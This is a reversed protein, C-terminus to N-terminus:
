IDKTTIGQGRAPYVPQNSDTTWRIYWDTYWNKADHHPISTHDRTPRTDKKTRTYDCINGGTGLLFPDVHKRCMVVVVHIYWKRRPLMRSVLANSRGKTVGRTTKTTRMMQPMQEPQSLIISTGSLLNM